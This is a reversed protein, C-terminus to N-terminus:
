QGERSRAAMETAILSRMIAQTADALPTGSGSRALAAVPLPPGFRVTAQTRAYPPWSLQLMASLLERGDQDQRIQRLPTHSAGASFVGSVLTPVVVLDPVLRAFADTSPSWLPLTSAAHAWVAPDPEIRGAPFTLLAGGARLHAAAARVVGANSLRPRTGVQPGRSEEHGPGGAADDVWLLPACLNPLLELFRRRAAVTRLGPRPIAAFLALTDTMGPHNSLFLLPGSAPLAEAGLIRLSVGLQELGWAAGAAYGSRGVEDDIEFMLRAFRAATWRGMRRLLTHALQRAGAGMREATRPYRPLARPALGFASCLDDLNVETLAHLRSSREVERGANEM